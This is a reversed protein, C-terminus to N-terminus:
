SARARYRRSSERWSARRRLTMPDADTRIPNGTTQPEGDCSGAAKMAEHFEATCDFCPTAGRFNVADWLEFEQPTMCAKM